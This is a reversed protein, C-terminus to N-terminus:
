KWFRVDTFYGSIATAAATTPSVLHTRGEKGQRGEFNRNSTSASREGPRLYDPNMGVCMSCGPERWEFGAQLFIEDLGEAEAQKKVHKSGPVVLVQVGKAAKNGKVIEAAVRLDEIRANTCSGIFVRDVKIDSMRMGPKLDMYTLAAEAEKRETQDTMNAPDPIKEDIGIVQGPNTGWTVQPALGEVNVKIRRDYEADQDSTLSRWYQMAKEWEEGKPAYRRGKLYAFTKEDPAIMGSRAGAEIAMNSITMRQEMTMAKVTSGTFEIVYDTAGGTGIQGIFSLIVDKSTVRPSLSGEIQVEMIKPKKQPLTQTALVHTIESSGIGFALSGFAGHTATHSDGCVIIKGPTTLGLEPGIVHVIGNNPDDLGYYTIGFAECNDKLFEIQQKSLLDLIPKTRDTTPVNHDATAFTLDPRRVKRKMQKLLTFAQPSTVEHILHLDVYLLSPELNPDVLHSEWIKDLITKAM